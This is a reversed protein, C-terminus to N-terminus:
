AGRTLNQEIMIVIIAVAAAAGGPLPHLKYSKWKPLDLYSNIFSHWYAVKSLKTLPICSESPLTRLM